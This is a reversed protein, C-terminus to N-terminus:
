KTRVEVKPAYLLTKDNWDMVCDFLVKLGLFAKFWAEVADQPVPVLTASRPRIHLIAFHDFPPIERETGDEDLIFDAYALAGLQMAMDPYPQKGTKNDILTTFRKPGIYAALDATGAYGYRDSWVTFESEIFEPHYRDVVGGFQRWMQRATLPAPHERGNKDTYVSVDPVAGTKVFEDIWEHVIDGIGAENPRDPDSRYPAGKVLEKIEEPSLTALTAIHESTYEACKRSAWGVLPIAKMDKINTISPNLSKGDRGPHRYFRGNATSEALKPQTM